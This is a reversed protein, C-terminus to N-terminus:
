QKSDLPPKDQGPSTDGARGNPKEDDFVLGLNKFEDPAM